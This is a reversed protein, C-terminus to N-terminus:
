VITPMWLGRTILYDPEYGPVSEPQVYQTEEYADRLPKVSHVSPHDYLERAALERLKM